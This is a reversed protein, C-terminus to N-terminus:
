TFVVEIAQAFHSKVAEHKRWPPSKPRVPRVASGESRQAPTQGWEDGGVLIDPHGRGTGRRLNLTYNRPHSEPKRRHRQGVRADADSYLVIVPQPSLDCRFGGGAQMYERRPKRGDHTRCALKAAWSNGLDTLAVRIASLSCKDSVEDTLNFEDCEDQRSAVTSGISRLLSLIAACYFGTGPEGVM